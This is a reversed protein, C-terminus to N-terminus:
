EKMKKNQKKIYLIKAKEYFEQKIETQCIEILLQGFIKDKKFQNNYVVDLQDKCRQFFPEFSLPQFFHSQDSSPKLYKLSKVNVIEEYLELFNPEILLFIDITCLKRRSQSEFDFQQEENGSKPSGEPTQIDSYTEDVHDMGM